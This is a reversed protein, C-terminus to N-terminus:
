ISCYPGPIKISVDFGLSFAKVFDEGQQLAGPATTHKSTRLEVAKNKTNMRVQLKLHEVLPPYLKTWAAKLPSLRHPPIPVKRTEVRRPGDQMFKASSTQSQLPINVTNKAAPFRPRGEEDVTM